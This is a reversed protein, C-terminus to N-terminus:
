RVQLMLEVEGGGETHLRLPVSAGPALPQQPRFLMLHLGGPRLEVRGGAPVALQPVPRMRMAGDDGAVMEHIEVAGFATSEAGTVVVTETGSNVLDIYGARVPAVPPAERIWGDRGELPAGAVATAAPLALLLCLMMSRVM